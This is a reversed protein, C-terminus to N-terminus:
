QFSVDKLYVVEKVKLLVRGRGDWDLRFDEGFKVCVSSQVSRQIHLRGTLHCVYFVAQNFDTLILSRSM